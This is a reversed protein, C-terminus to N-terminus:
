PGPCLESWQTRVHGREKQHMTYEFFPASAMPILSSLRSDCCKQPKFACRPMLPQKIAQPRTHAYELTMEPVFTPPLFDEIAGAYSGPVCVSGIFPICPCPTHLFPSM